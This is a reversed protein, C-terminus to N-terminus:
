FIGTYLPSGRICVAIGIQMRLYLIRRKEIQSHPNGNAYKFGWKCVPNGMHLNAYFLTAHHSAVHCHAPTNRFPTSHHSSICSPLPAVLPLAVVLRRMSSLRRRLSPSALHLLCLLFHCLLWCLLILPSPSAPPPPQMNLPLQVIPVTRCSTLSCGALAFLLTTGLCTHRWQLRLSQTYGRLV